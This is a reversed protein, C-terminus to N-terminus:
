SKKKWLKSIEDYVYNTKDIETYVEAPLSFGCEHCTVDTEPIHYWTMLRCRPCRIRYESPFWVGAINDSNIQPIENQSIENAM